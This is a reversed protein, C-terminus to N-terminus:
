SGARHASPRGCLAVERARLSARATALNVFNIVALLLILVGVVALAAITGSDNGARMASDQAEGLHVDRM